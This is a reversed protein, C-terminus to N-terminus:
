YEPKQLNPLSQKNATKRSSANAEHINIIWPIIGLIKHRRLSKDDPFHISYYKEGGYFFVPM